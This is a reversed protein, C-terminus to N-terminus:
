RALRQSLEGLARFGAMITKLTELVEPYEQEVASAYLRRIDDDIGDLLLRGEDTIYLEFARRDRDNRVRRILGREELKHCVSSFNTRLIGSRDSLQGASQGPEELLETLVYMQQPTVDYQQCIPALGEHMFIQFSQRVRVLERRFEEPTVEFSHAPESLASVAAAFGASASAPSVASASAAPAPPVASASAASAISASVVSVSDASTAGSSPGSDSVSSFLSNENMVSVVQSVNARPVPSVDRAVEGQWASCLAGDWLEQVQFLLHDQSEEM